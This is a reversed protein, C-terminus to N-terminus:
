PADLVGRPQGNRRGLEVRRGLARRSEGSGLRNGWRLGSALTASLAVLALVPVLRLLVRRM